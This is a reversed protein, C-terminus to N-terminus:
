SRDQADRAFVEQTKVLDEAEWGRQPRANSMFCGVVVGATIVGLALLFVGHLASAVAAQMLSLLLEPILARTEPRLLLRPDSLQEMVGKPMKALLNPNLLQRLYYHMRYAMFSGMISVGLAGGMNRFFMASSTAIGLDARSVTNQIAVVVTTTASGMGLGIIFINRVVEVSTTHGGMRTLLFFGVMMMLTGSLTLNRYGFRSVLWGSAMSGCLWGFSLPTLTIGASTASGGMVGQVFLPIFAITGFLSVGTLFSVVNSVAFTRNGFLSLPIMPEEIRTEWRLLLGILIVSLILLSLVPLSGWTHGESTRLFALLLAVIGGSMLAAGPYDIFHERREEKLGRLGLSIAMAALVGIPINVYFVWRWSVRDVIFGGVLPGVISAVAWVASMLGQIRGRKLPSFIVGVIISSISFVAGAGVGQLVRFAILQVMDRAMGCLASGSLFILIGTLCVGRRGHIDSLRGSIPTSVTLALMYAAFVWSYIDLGGLHAIVTPMATGVITADLAALLTGLLIGVTAAVLKVRPIEIMIM